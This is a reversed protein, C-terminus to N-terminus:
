NIVGFNFGKKKLKSIIQPLAELMKRGCKENDHM